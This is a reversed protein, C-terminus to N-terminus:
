ARMGGRIPTGCVGAGKATMRRGRAGDRGGMVNGEGMVDRGGMVDHRGM